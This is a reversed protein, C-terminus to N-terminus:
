GFVIEWPEGAAATYWEKLDPWAMVADRYTAAVPDLAIGYTVFRSVVPAFFADAIGFSGFLFDGRAGYRERCDQWITQIRRIDAKTENSLMQDPRRNRMDMPLSQRLHPFGSHMEATVSRAVARAPGDTPWLGADPHREALYEAIALSDWIVLDPTKLIPVKGAPSHELINARTEPGRLPIVVEEFAAGTQKLPLWGRLSWSSYNKNGLVITYRTM